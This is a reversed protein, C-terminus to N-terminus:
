YTCNEYRLKIVFVLYHNLFLLNVFLLMIKQVGVAKLSIKIRPIEEKLDNKYSMDHCTVIFVENYENKINSQM